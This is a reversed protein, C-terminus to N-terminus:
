GKLICTDSRRYKVSIAIQKFFVGGIFEPLYKYIFYFPVDKILVEMGLTEIKDYGM